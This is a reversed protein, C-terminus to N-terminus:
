DTANSTRRNWANMAEKETKESSEYKSKCPLFIIAGCKQCSYQFDRYHLTKHSTFIHTVKGGCFPCSKLENQM